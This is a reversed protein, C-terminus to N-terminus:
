QSGLLDRYHVRMMERRKQVHDGGGLQSPDVTDNVGLVGELVQARARIMTQQETLDFAHKIETSTTTSAM